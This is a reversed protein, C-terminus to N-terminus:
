VAKAIDAIRSLELNASLAAGIAGCGLDSRRGLYAGPRRDLNSRARRGSRTGSGYRRAISATGVDNGPELM